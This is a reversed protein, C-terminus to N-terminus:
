DAYIIEKMGVIDRINQLARNTMICYELTRHLSDGERIKQICEEINQSCKFDAPIGKFVKFTRLQMPDCLVNMEEGTLGVSNSGAIIIATKNELIDIINM